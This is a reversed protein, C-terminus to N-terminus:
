MRDPTSIGILNLTNSLTQKVAQILALRSEDTKKDENGLVRCAEYFSHFKRAIDLAYHPIAQLGYTEAANQAVEPFKILELALNKEQEIAGIAYGNVNLDYGQEEAKKLISSLRAYAYQIYFVPNRESQEKALSVDFEMQTNLSKMLYFFRAADLGVEDILWDLTIIKGTRKSMKVREGEEKLGVMQAILADFKGKYGIFNLAAQMSKIHGQHDAGLIDILVDFGREMKNKHYAIDPLLYTPSKTEDSRVIVRDESDGFDSLKIWVAGEKEYVIEKKKLFDLMADVAGSDYLEKQESFWNDFKIKLKEELLKEIDLILERAVISGADAEDKVTQLEDKLMELKKLLKETKYSEGKGLATKGLENIQTSKKADNIYFEKTVDFGSLALVKALTDGFFAGRGHGLHLDGTPNASVFEILAKKGKGYESSGFNNKEKLIKEVASSVFGDALFFNLFGAGAVEVKSFYGLKATAGGLLETKIKEAIERPSAKLNKAIKLAINASYDGYEKQEPHNIEFDIEGIGALEGKQKLIDVAESITKKITEQINM